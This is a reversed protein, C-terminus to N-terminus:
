IEWDLVTTIPKPAIFEGKVIAVEREPSSDSPVRQIFFARCEPRVEESTVDRIAMILAEDNFYPRVRVGDETNQIWFYM